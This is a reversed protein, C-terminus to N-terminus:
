RTYTTEKRKKLHSSILILLSVLLIPSDGWNSYPTKGSRAQISGLLNDQTFGDLQNIVRGRHDIIATAGTNTARVTPLGTELSRLRALKLQQIPAQSNGFWALNTMNIILNTPTQLHRIRNSLEDGFVDEYCITVAAFIDPQGTRSIKFNAQNKPGAAFDSLPVQIADVFWKFGPPVYEGFPVLHEKDYFYRSANPSIGIARNSYQNGVTGVAGVLVHSNSQTAFEQIKPFTLAPLFQEPIALATEPTIILDSAKNTITNLYFDVQRLASDSDTYLPQLFNGQILRVELMKGIPKTYESDEFLSSIFVAFGVAILPLFLKRPVSGFQHAAWLVAFTAGLSGFIPILGVFPGNIQSEGFGNWPFGTFLHARLWEAFTWAAAWAIASYPRYHFRTGLWVAFAPFLALFSALLFVGTIALLSHMGGVDHLSIYLWWLGLSFYGLGYSWGLWAQLKSAQFNQRDLYIWLAALAFIQLWGNNEASAITASILGILFAPFLQKLFRIM